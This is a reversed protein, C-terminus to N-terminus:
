SAVAAATQAAASKTPKAIFVPCTAHRVIQNVTSGLFSDAFTGPGHAGVVILDANIEKAVQMTSRWASGTEVRTTIKGARRDGTMVDLAAKANELATHLFEASTRPHSDKPAWEFRGGDVVNLLTVDALYEEALAFAINVTSDSGPRLDVACLIRRFVAGDDSADALGTTLVPCPLSRMLKETTSGMLFRDWGSRGHTGMVVLNAPLTRAFKAIEKAPHGDLITTEITVGLTHHRKALEDLEKAADKRREQLMEAPVGLYTSALPSPMMVQSSMVPIVHVVTVRAHFWKALSVARKMAHESFDSFDTPCLIEKLPLRTNSSSTM